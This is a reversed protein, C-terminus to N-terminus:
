QKELCIEKVMTRESRGRICVYQTGAALWYDADFMKHDVNVKYRTCTQNWPCDVMAKLPTMAKKDGLVAHQGSVQLIHFLFVRQFPPTIHIVHYM